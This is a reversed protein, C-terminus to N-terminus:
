KRVNKKLGGGKTEESIDAANTSKNASKNTSKNKNVSKNANKNMNSNIKAKSNNSNKATNNIVNANSTIDNSGATPKAGSINIVSNTNSNSNAFDGSVHDQLIVAKELMIELDEKKDASLNESSTKAIIANVLRNVSDKYAKVKLKNEQANAVVAWGLQELDHILWRELECYTTSSQDVSSM